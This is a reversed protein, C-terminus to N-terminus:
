QAEYFQLLSYSELSFSWVVGGYTGRQLFSYLLVILLPLIFFLLLWFTAPFLLFAM